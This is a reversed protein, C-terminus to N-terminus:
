AWVVKIARVKRSLLGYVDLVAEYADDEGLYALHSRCNERCDSAGFGNIPITAGRISQIAKNIRCERNIVSACAVVATVEAKRCALLYDIHWHKIRRKRFHRAVRLRLSVAGKGVASGTYAYYGKRLWCGGRSPVTIRSQSELYIILTYNGRTPLAELALL